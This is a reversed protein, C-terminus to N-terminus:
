KFIIDHTHTRAHTHSKSPGTCHRLFENATATEHEKKLENPFSKCNSLTLIALPLINQQFAKVM